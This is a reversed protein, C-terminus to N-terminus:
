FRSKVMGSWRFLNTQLQMIEGVEVMIIFVKLLSVTFSHSSRSRSILLDRGVIVPTMPSKHWNKLIINKLDNGMMFHWVFMARIRLPELYNHPRDSCVSFKWCLSSHGCKLACMAFSGSRATGQSISQVHHNPYNALNGHMLNHLFM